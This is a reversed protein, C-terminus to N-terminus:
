LERHLKSVRFDIKANECNQVTFNVLMKNKLTYIMLVKFYIDQNIDFKCMTINTFYPQCLLWFVRKKLIETFKQV